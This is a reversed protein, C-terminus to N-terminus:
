VGIGLDFDGLDHMGEAVASTADTLLSEAYLPGSAHLRLTAARYQAMRIKAWPILLGASFVIAVSNVALLKLMAGFRQTSELRHDGVTMGGYLLNSLEARLYAAPILLWLFFLAM